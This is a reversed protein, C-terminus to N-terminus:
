HRGCSRLAQVILVRLRRAAGIQRALNRQRAGGRVLLDRFTRVLGDRRQCLSGTVYLAATAFARGCAVWGARSSSRIGFARGARRTDRDHPCWHGLRRRGRRIGPSGDARM